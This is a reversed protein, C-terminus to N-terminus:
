QIWLLAKKMSIVHMSEFLAGAVSPCVSKETASVVSFVTVFHLFFCLVSREIWGTLLILISFAARVM